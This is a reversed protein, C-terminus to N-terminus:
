RQYSYITKLLRYRKLTIEARIAQVSDPYRLHAFSTWADRYSEWTQEIKSLHDASVAGEDIDEKSQARLQKLKKGCERRLATDATAIQNDSLAPWRKHEFHVLETHFLNNLMDESGITRMARITGGQDVELAHAKIYASQAALLKDFAAQQNPPMSSKLSRYYRDRRDDEIESTYGSCFDMTITSAAYDCFEFRRHDHPSLAFKKIDPLALMAMGEESECAFRMALPINRKVGAGNIYIDALILSGGVIWATPEQQNQGLEAQQALRERWACARADSYNLPRGIGRFSRYSACAPASKPAPVNEAETPLPVSAYASCNTPTEAATTQGLAAAVLVFLVTTLGFLQTYRQRTRSM